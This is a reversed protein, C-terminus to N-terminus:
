VSDWHESITLLTPVLNDRITNGVGEVVIPANSCGFVNGFVHNHDARILMKGSILRNRGIINNNGMAAICDFVDCTIVNDVITARSYVLTPSTGGLLQNGRVITDDNAVLLRAFSGGEAVVTSNTLVSGIGGLGIVTGKGGSARVSEILTRSGTTSIAAGVEDRQAAIIRGNRIIVDQGTSSIGAYVVSLEFGQLDLTVNDAQIVIAARDFPGGAFWNRDFVYVGPERIEVPSTSLDIIHAGSIPPPPGGFNFIESKARFVIRRTGSQDRCSSYTGPEVPLACIAMVDTPALDAVRAWTGNSRLVILQMSNPNNPSEYTLGSCSQQGIAGADPCTLLLNAVPQAEAATVLLVCSIAFLISVIPSRM